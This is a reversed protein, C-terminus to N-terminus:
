LPVRKMMGGEAGAAANPAQCRPSLSQGQASGTAGDCRLLLQCGHCVCIESIHPHQPTFVIEVTNKRSATASAKYGTAAGLKQPVSGM